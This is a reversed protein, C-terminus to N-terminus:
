LAEPLFEIASAIPIYSKGDLYFESYLGRALKIEEAAQTLRTARYHLSVVIIQATVFSVVAFLLAAWERTFMGKGWQHEVAATAAEASAAAHHKLRIEDEEYM